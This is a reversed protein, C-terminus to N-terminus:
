EAPKHCAAISLTALQGSRISLQVIPQMGSVLQLPEAALQMSTGALACEALLWPLRVRAPHSPMANPGTSESM